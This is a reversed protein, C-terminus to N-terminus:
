NKLFIAIIDGSLPLEMKEKCAPNGLHNVADTRYVDFDVSKIFKDTGETVEIKNSKV